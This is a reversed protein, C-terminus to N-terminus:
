IPVAIFKMLILCMKVHILSRYPAFILHLAVFFPKEFRLLRSNVPSGGPIGGIYLMMSKVIFLFSMAAYYAPLTISCCTKILGIIM